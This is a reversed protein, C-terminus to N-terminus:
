VWFYKYEIITKLTALLDAGIALFLPKIEYRSLQMLLQWIAEKGNFVMLFRQVHAIYTVYFTCKILEVYQLAELGLTYCGQAHEM